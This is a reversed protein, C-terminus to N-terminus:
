RVPGPLLERRAAEALQRDASRVRGLAATDAVPVPVDDPLARRPLLLVGFLLAVGVPIASLRFAARLEARALSPARPASPASSSSRGDAEVVRSAISPGGGRFPSGHELKAGVGARGEIHGNLEHLLIGG